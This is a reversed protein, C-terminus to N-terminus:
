AAGDIVKLSRARALSLAREANALEERIQDAPAPVLTVGADGLVVRAGPQGEAAEATALRKKCSDIEKEILAIDLAIREEPSVAVPRRQNPDYPSVLEDTRTDMVNVGNVFRTGVNSKPPGDPGWYVMGIDSM